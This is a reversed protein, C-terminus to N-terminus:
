MRQSAFIYDATTLTSGVFKMPEGMFFPIDATNSGIPGTCSTM